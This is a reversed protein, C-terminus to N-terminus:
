RPPMVSVTISKLAASAAQRVSEDEDNASVLILNSIIPNKDNRKGDVTFMQVTGLAKAAAARVKPESGFLSPVLSGGIPSIFDNPVFKISQINDVARIVRVRVNADRHELMAGVQKYLVMMYEEATINLETVSAIVRDAAEDTMVGLNAITLRLVDERSNVRRPVDPTKTPPINEASTRAQRALSGASALANTFDTESSAHAHASILATGLLLAATKITM